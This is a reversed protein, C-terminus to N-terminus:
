QVNVIHWSCLTVQTNIKEKALLWPHLSRVPLSHNKRWQLFFRYLALCCHEPEWCGLRHSSCPSSFLASQSEHIFLGFEPLKIKTKSLFMTLHMPQFRSPGRTCIRKFFSSLFRGWQWAMRDCRSSTIQSKNKLSHHSIQNHGAHLKWATKM